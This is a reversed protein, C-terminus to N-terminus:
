PQVYGLKRWEEVAEEVAPGDMECELMVALLAEVPAPIDQAGSAWRRPNRTDMGHTRALDNPTINLSALAARLQEATM